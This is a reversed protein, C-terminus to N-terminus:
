VHYKSNDKALHVIKADFTCAQEFLEPFALSPSAVFVEDRHEVYFKNLHSEDHWTAIINNSEDEDTRNDLEEIMGLVDPLKGGWLCGQFYISLDEDEAVCAKSLPTVDFAGPINDHPPFDLYHCPHHVGIYKKTDDFLDEPNVTDVVRMDADLFLLWDCDKIDEFCRRIMKFRYLTIYPWELHEQKYVVANDPAEPIEGDTFIAYKKEVGPLLFKECSEYWTPLFNLYKETGIFIVAVKM